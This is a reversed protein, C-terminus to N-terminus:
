PRGHSTSSQGSFGRIREQGATWEEAHGEFSRRASIFTVEHQKGALLGGYYGGMGGAGMVAIKM